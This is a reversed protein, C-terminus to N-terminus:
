ARQGCGDQNAQVRYFFAVAMRSAYDVTAQDKLASADKVARGVYYDIASDTPEQAHLATSCSFAIVCFLRLAAKKPTPLMPKEWAPLAMKTCARSGVNWPLFLAAQYQTTTQVIVRECITAKDACDANDSLRLTSLLEGDFGVPVRKILPKVAIPASTNRIPSVM